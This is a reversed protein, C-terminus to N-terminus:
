LSRAPRTHPTRIENNSEVAIAVAAAFLVLSVITPALPEAKGHGYAHNEDPRRMAVRLGVLVVFSSVVDSLSEIGDAILPYSNGIIGSLVKGNALLVNLGM